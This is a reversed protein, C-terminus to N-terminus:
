KGVKRIEVIPSITHRTRREVLGLSRLYNIRASIKTVREDLAEAILATVERESWWDAPVRQFVQYTEKTLTQGEVM